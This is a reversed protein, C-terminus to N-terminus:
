ASGSTPTPLTTLINVATTKGAGNHGLFGFIEGQEIVLDLDRLVTTDAYGHCLQRLEIAPITTSTM